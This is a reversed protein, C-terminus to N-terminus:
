QSLYVCKKLKSFTISYEGVICRGEIGYFLASIIVLSRLVLMTIVEGIYSICQMQNFVVEFYSFLFVVKVVSHINTSGLM